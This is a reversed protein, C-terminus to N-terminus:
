MRPAILNAPINIPQISFPNDSAPDVTIRVAGVERAGMVMLRMATEITRRDRDVLPRDLLLVHSDGHILLVPRGFRVAGETLARISNAFGSSLDPRPEREEWMNAQFAIVLAAASTRTAEEFAAGIWAVNARDREMFEEPAGPRPEFNNNSGVIHATAFVVGNHTWRANEVFKAFEPAVDAQRTVTIPAQGLSRADPFHLRRVFALRELPDMRGAAARHCDTWENDGPTYVVAARFRAFYDHARRIIEDSCPTSGSKTDGVHISFSPSLANIADILREFRPYDAPLTYPMDGFAVFSFPPAGQSPQAAAPAALAALLAAAALRM